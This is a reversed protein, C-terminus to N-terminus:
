WGLLDECGEYQWLKEGGFFVLRIDPFPTAEHGVGGTHSKIGEGRNTM